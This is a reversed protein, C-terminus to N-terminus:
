VRNIKKTYFIKDVGEKPYNSFRGVERYGSKEYFGPAQFSYTDLFSNEVGIRAAEAEVTALLDRGYGASRISGSLWLYNIHLSSFIIVGCLGGVISGAESRILCAIKREKLGPFYPVNYEVLGDYIASIEEESPAHTVEIKM